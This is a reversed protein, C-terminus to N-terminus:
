RLHARRYRWHAGELTVRRLYEAMSSDTRRRTRPFEYGLNELSFTLREALPETNAIAQPLDAFLASM